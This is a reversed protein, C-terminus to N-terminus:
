RNYIKHTRVITKFGDELCDIEIQGKSYLEKILDYYFLDGSPWGYPAYGMCNGILKSMKMPETLQALVHRELEIRSLPVINDNADLQFFEEENKNICDYAGVLLIKEEKSLLRATLANEMLEEDSVALPSLGSYEGKIDVLYINASSNRALEMLLLKSYPTHPNWFTIKDANVDESNPNVVVKHEFVREIQGGLQKSESIWLSNALITLTSQEM